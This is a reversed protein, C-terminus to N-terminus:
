YINYCIIFYTLSFRFGNYIIRYPTFVFQCTCFLFFQFQFLFLVKYFRYFSFSYASFEFVKETGCSDPFRETLKHFVFVLHVKQSLSFKGLGPIKMVTIESRCFIGVKFFFREATKIILLVIYKM